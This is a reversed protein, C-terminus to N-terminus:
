PIRLLNMLRLCLMMSNDFHPWGRKIVRNFNIILERDEAEQAVNSLLVRMM